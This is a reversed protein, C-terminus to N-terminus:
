GRGARGARGAGGRRGPRARRAERSARAPARVLREVSAVFQGPTARYLSEGLKLAQRQLRQRRRDLVEVVAARATESPRARRSGRRATGVIRARLVALDHDDGLLDSLRHLPASLSRRRDPLLQELLVVQYRLYKVQKRWEHLREVTPQERAAEHAERGQAYTHELGERLTRWRDTGHRWKLIREHMRRLGELQRELTRARGLVRGRVDSERRALERRVRELAARDKRLRASKGLEALQEIMVTADRLESLPRGADRLLRNTVRYRAHGLAGRLLRLAARAKKLSTRARHISADTLPRRQLREITEEIRHRVATRASRAAEAGRKSAGM